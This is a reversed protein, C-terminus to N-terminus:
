ETKKAGFSATFSNTDETTRGYMTGVIGTPKTTNSTKPGTYHLLIYGNDYQVGNINGISPQVPFLIIGLNNAGTLINNNRSSPRLQGGVSQGDLKFENFLFDFTGLSSTDGFNFNVTAKGTLRSIKVENNKTSAHLGLLSGKYTATGTLAINFPGYHNNKIAFTGIDYDSLKLTKVKPVKVWSGWTIWDTTNDTSYDSVIEVHMKADKNNDSDTDIEAKLIKSDFKDNLGVDLPTTAYSNQDFSFVKPHSSHTVENVFYQVEEGDVEGLPGLDKHYDFRYIVKGDQLTPIINPALIARIYSRGPPVHRLTTYAPKKGTNSFVTGTAAVERVKNGINVTEATSFGAFQAATAQQQRTNLQGERTNLGQERADLNGKRTNLAAERADLNSKRTPDKADRGLATEREDLATKRDDQEKKRQSVAAEGSALEKERRDLESKRAPDTSEGGGSGCAALSLSAVGIM